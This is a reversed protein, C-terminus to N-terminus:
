YTGNNQITRRSPNNTPPIQEAAQSVQRPSVQNNEDKSPLKGTQVFTQLEDFTYQSVIGTGYVDIDEPLDELKANDTPLPFLNYSTNRDGKVGNREIEIPTAVLPNYRRCMAELNQKVWQVGREWVQMENTEMNYVSLYVRAQPRDGRACLPCNSLPENLKDAILCDVVKTKGDVEIRHVSYSDIDGYGNYAFRVKGVEKDNALTFFSNSGQPFKEAQDMTIKAM